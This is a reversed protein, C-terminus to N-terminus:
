YEPTQTPRSLLEIDIYIVIYKKGIITIHNKFVNGINRHVNGTNGMSKNTANSKTSYVHASCMEFDFCPVPSKYSHIESPFRSDESFDSPMKMKDSLTANMLPAAKIVATVPSVATESFSNANEILRDGAVHKQQQEIKKTKQLLESCKEYEKDQNFCM